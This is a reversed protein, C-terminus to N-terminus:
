NANLNGVPIAVYSSSGPRRWQLQRVAQGGHGGDRPLERLEHLLRM